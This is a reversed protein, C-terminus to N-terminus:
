KTNKALIVEPTASAGKAAGGVAQESIDYPLVDVATVADKRHTELNCM